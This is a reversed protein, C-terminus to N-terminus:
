IDDNKLEKISNAKIGKTWNDFPNKTNALADAKGLFKKKLIKLQKFPPKLCKLYKDVQIKFEVQLQSLFNKLMM